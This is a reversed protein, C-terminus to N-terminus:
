LQAHKYYGSLIATIHPRSLGFVEAIAQHTLGKNRLEVINRVEQLGIKHIHRGKKVMDHINDTRSGVFLHAPNCCNRVDCVHCVFSDQPLEGHLREYIIRHASVASRKGNTTVNIRAYGGRFTSFPWIFCGNEDEKCISILEQASWEGLPAKNM